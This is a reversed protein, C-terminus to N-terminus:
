TMIIDIIDIDSLLIFELVKKLHGRIESEKPLNRNRSSRSNKALRLQNCDRNSLQRNNESVM